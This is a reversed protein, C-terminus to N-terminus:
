IAKQQKELNSRKSEWMSLDVADTEQNRHGSAVLPLLAGQCCKWEQIKRQQPVNNFIKNSVRKDSLPLHSM